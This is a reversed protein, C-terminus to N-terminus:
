EKLRNRETRGYVVDVVQAITPVRLAGIINGMQRVRGRLHRPGTRQTPIMLPHAVAVCTGHLASGSAKLTKGRGRRGM